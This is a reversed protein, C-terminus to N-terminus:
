THLIVKDEMKPQNMYAKVIKLAYFKPNKGPPRAEGTYCIAFGGKGLFSGVDYRLALTEGNRPPQIVTSPPEPAFKEDKSDERHIKGETSKPKVQINASRPSLAAMDLHLGPIDWTLIELIWEFEPNEWDLVQRESLLAYATPESESGFVKKAVQRTKTAALILGRKPRGLVTTQLSLETIARGLSRLGQGPRCFYDNINQRKSTAPTPTM